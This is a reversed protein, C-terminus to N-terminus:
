HNWRYKENGEMKYVSGCWAGGCIYDLTSNIYSACGWVFHDYSVYAPNYFM